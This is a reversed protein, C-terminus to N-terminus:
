QWIKTVLMDCCGHGMVSELIAIADFAKQTEVSLANNDMKVDLIRVKELTASVNPYLTPISAHTKYYGQKLTVQLETM